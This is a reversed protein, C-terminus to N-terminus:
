QTQAGWGTARYVGKCIDFCAMAERPGIWFPGPDDLKAYFDEILVQHSFGWYSRGKTPHTRDDVHESRGDAWIVDLGGRGLRATGATGVLELEVPRAFPSCLTAEISSQLGSPHTLVLAASDEVEIGGGDAGVPFKLTAAHGAVRAVGGMLWQVLDLTHLAQNILLGGGSGSWTGRWPKARYYDLTRQWIVSAYCGVLDGLESHDVLRKLAVSTLNYRNQLCIGIKTGTQSARDGAAVIAEADVRSAAIPKEQIVHVGADLLDVTVEAHAHHPTTVHVVEPRVQDLLEAHTAFVPVGHVEAAKARGADPEVLGVLEITPLAAIAELHVSAVDGIGVVAARTPSTM